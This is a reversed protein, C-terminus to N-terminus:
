NDIVMCQVEQGYRELSFRGSPPILTAPHASEGFERKQVPRYEYGSCARMSEGKYLTFISNGIKVGLDISSAPVGFDYEYPRRIITDSDNFVVAVWEVDSKRLVKSLLWVLFTVIKCGKLLAM